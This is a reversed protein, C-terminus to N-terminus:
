FTCINIRGAKQLGALTQRSELSRFLKKLKPRYNKSLKNNCGCLGFKRQRPCNNWTIINSYTIGNLTFELFQLQVEYTNIKQYIERFNRYSDLYKFNFIIGDKKNFTVLQAKHLAITREIITCNANNTFIQTRIIQM